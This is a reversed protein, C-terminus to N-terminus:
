KQITAKLYRQFDPNKVIEKSNLNSKMYYLPKHISPNNEILNDTDITFEDDNDTLM